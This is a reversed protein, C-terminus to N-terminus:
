WLKEATSESTDNDCGALVLGFALLAALMGLVFVKNKKM